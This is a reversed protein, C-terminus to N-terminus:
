YITNINQKVFYLFLTIALLDASGGPSVRDKSYKEELVLCKELSHGSDLLERAERQVKYLYNIGKRSVITSDEVISMLYLLTKVMASNLEKGKELEEELIPLSNKFVLNLGLKAVGRVGLFGHELYLKEGNTLKTKHTLSDFDCLIDKCMDKILLEINEFDKEEYLNKAVSAITIGLLFIMGKHTNIGKTAIFMDKEAEIGLKRIQKFINKLDLNSYGVYAMKSLWKKIAFSSDLFNFYDMDNHAGKTLPSVLGFSPNCSVEYICAKLALDGLKESINVRKTEELLYTEYSKYIHNKLEEEKHKMSRTCIVADEDCIYCKRKKYNLSTRSISSGDIDYVDIDVFRGLNHKEEIEIAIKKLELLSLDCIFFSILGELSIQMENFIIKEDLIKKSEETIIQVIEKSPYQSKNRGPYNARIILLPKKYEELLKLQKEVRLERDLLFNELNFEDLNNNEM